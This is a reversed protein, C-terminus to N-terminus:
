ASQRLYSHALMQAQGDAVVVYDRTFSAHPVRYGTLRYGPQARYEVIRHNGYAVHAAPNDANFPVEKRFPHM